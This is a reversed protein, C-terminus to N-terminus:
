HRSPKSGADGPHSQTEPQQKLTDDPAADMEEPPVVHVNIGIVRWNGDEDAFFSLEYTVYSPETEFYGALQLYGDADIVPAPDEIPPFAVIASLDIAEDRFVKFVDSLAEPPFQESFPAAALADFVEYNDTLNADNFTMLTAKTMVERVTANPMAQAFAATTVLAGALFTLIALKRM